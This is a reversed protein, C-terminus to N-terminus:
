SFKKNKIFFRKNKNKVYIISNGYNFYYNKSYIFESIAKQPIFQIQKNNWKMIYVNELKRLNVKFIPRSNNIRKIVNKIHRSFDWDKCLTSVEYVIADEM